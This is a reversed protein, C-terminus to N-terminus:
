THIDYYGIGTMPHCACVADLRVRLYLLIFPSLSKPIASDMAATEAANALPQVTLTEVLLPVSNPGLTGVVCVLTGNIMLVNPGNLAGASLEDVGQWLHVEQRRLTVRVRNEDPLPVSNV